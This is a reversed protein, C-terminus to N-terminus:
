STRPDELETMDFLTTQEPPPAYRERSFPVPEYNFYNAWSAPDLAIEILEDDEEDFMAPEGKARRRQEAAIM